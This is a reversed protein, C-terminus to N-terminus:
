GSRERERMKGREGEWELVRRERRDGDVGRTLAM